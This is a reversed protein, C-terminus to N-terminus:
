RRRARTEVHEAIVRVAPPLETVPCGGLSVVGSTPADIGALLRALTSKGAGSPGVIALREGPVVALDIGHLVEAAGYGARLGTVELLSM